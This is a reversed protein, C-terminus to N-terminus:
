VVSLLIPEASVGHIKYAGKPVMRRIQGHEDAVVQHKMGFADEIWVPHNAIPRGEEVLEFALMGEGAEVDRELYAMQEPVRPMQYVPAAQAHKESLEERLAELHCSIRLSLCSIELLRERLGPVDFDCCLLEDVTQEVSNVWNHFRHLMHASVGRLDRAVAIDQEAWTHIKEIRESLYRNSGGCGVANYARLIEGAERKIGILWQEILRWSEASEPKLKDFLPRFAAIYHIAENCSKRLISISGAQGFEQWRSVECLLEGCLCECKQYIRRFKEIAEYIRETGTCSELQTVMENAAPYVADGVFKTTRALVEGIQSTARSDYFVVRNATGFDTAAEVFDERANYILGRIELATRLTAGHVAFYLYLDGVAKYFTDLEELREYQVQNAKIKGVIQKWDNLAVAPDARDEVVGKAISRAIDLEGCVFTNNKLGPVARAATATAAIQEVLAIHPEKYKEFSAGAASGVAPKTVAPRRRKLQESVPARAPAAAGGGHKGEHEVRAEVENKESRKEM